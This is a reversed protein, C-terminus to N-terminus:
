GRTVGPLSSGFIKKLRARLWRKDATRRGSGAEREEKRGRRRGRTAGQRRSGGGGSGEKGM